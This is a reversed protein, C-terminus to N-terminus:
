VPGVTVTYVDYQDSCKMSTMVPVVADMSMMIHAVSTIIDLLGVSGVSPTDVWGYAHQGWRPRVDRRSM